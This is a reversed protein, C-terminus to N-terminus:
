RTIKINFGPMGDFFEGELVPPGTPPEPVLDVPPPPAPSPSIEVFGSKAARKEALTPRGAAAQEADYEDSRRQMERAVDELCVQDAPGELQKGALAVRKELLALEFKRRAARDSVAQVLDEIDVMDPRIAEVKGLLRDMVHM